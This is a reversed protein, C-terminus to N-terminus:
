RKSFCEGDINWLLLLFDSFLLALYESPRWKISKKVCSWHSLTVRVTQCVTDNYSIGFSLPPSVFSEGSTPTVPPPSALQQQQQQQQQHGNSTLALHQATLHPQLLQLGQATNIYSAHPTGGSGGNTAAAMQLAMLPQSFLQQFNLFFCINHAMERAIQM